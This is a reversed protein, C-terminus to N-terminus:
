GQGEKEESLLKFNLDLRQLREKHRCIPLYTLTNVVWPCFKSLLIKSMNSLGEREFEVLNYKSEIRQQWDKYECFSKNNFYKYNIFELGFKKNSDAKELVEMTQRKGQLRVEEELARKKTEKKISKSLISMLNALRVRAEEFLSVVRGVDVKM